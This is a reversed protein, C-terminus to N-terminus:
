GEIRGSNPDRQLAGEQRELAEAARRYAAAMGIALPVLESIYDAMDAHRDANTDVPKLTTLQGMLAKVAAEAADLKVQLNTLATTAEQLELDGANAKEAAQM